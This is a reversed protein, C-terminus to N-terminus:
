NGSLDLAYELLWVRPALTIKILDSVKVLLVIFGILGSIGGGFMYFVAVDESFDDSEFEKSFKKFLRISIISLMLGLAVGISYAITKYTLIESVFLPLEGNLVDVGSNLLELLRLGLEEM